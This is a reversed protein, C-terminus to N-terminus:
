DTTVVVAGKGDLVRVARRKAFEAARSMALELNPTKFKIVWHGFNQKLEVTYM